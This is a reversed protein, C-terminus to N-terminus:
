VNKNEVIEFDNIPHGPWPEIKARCDSQQLLRYVEPAVRVLFHGSIMKAIARRVQYYIAIPNCSSLATWLDTRERRREIEILGAHTQRVDAILPDQALIQKFDATLRLHAKGRKSGALDVLILGGMNKLRIQRAIETLAGRNLDSLPIDAGASDVDITWCVATREINLRGGNKLTVVPQMAFDILDDMEDSEIDTAQPLPVPDVQPAPRATADKGPRAEKIIQVTLTQGECLHERTPIFLNGRDTKAFYGKLIPHYATIKASVTDGFNLVLDRHIIIEEPGNDGIQAIRREGFAINQVWKM